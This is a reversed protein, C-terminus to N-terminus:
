CTVLFKRVQVKKHEAGPCTTQSVRCLSNCSRLAYCVACAGGSMVNVTTPGVMACGVSPTSGKVQRRYDTSCAQVGPNQPVCANLLSCLQLAARSLEEICISRTPDAKQVRFAGPPARHMESLGTSNTQLGAPGSNSFRQVTTTCPQQSLDSREGRCM